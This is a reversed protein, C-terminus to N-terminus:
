ADGLRKELAEIKQLAQDLRDNVLVHIQDLKEGADAAQTETVGALKDAAKTVNRNTRWATLFVAAATLLSALAAIVEASM